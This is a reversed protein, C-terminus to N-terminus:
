KPEQALDRLMAGMAAHPDRDSLRLVSNMEELTKGKAGASTMALAARISLPSFFVNGPQNDLQHYLDLAFESSAPMSEEAHSSRPIIMALVLLLPPSFRTRKTRGLVQVSFRDGPDGSFQLVRAFCKALM